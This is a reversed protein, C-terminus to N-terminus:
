PNRSDGPEGGQGGGQLPFPSAEAQLVEDAVWQMVEFPGTGAFTLNAEDQGLDDYAKKSQISSTGRWQNSLEVSWRVSLTGKVHMVATNSDIVEWRDTYEGWFGSRPNTNGESKANNFSWVVDEATVDGWGKHFPVGQRIKFTISSQDPSVEWSEALSQEMNLAGIQPIPSRDRWLLPEKSGYHDSVATFFPVYSPVDNPHGLACCWILAGSQEMAMAPPAAPAPAATPAPAPQAPAAPAAATPQAAPAPAPAATPAPQVAPAPAEEEEGACAVAVLAVILILSLLFFPTLKM